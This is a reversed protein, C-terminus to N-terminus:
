SHIYTYIENEKKVYGNKVLDDLQMDFIRKIMSSNNEWLENYSIQKAKAIENLLSMNIVPGVGM